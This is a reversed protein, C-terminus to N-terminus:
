VSAIPPDYRVGGTMPTAVGTTEPFTLPLGRISRAALYAMAEAEIFDGRLGNDDVSICPRGLRESLVRMLVPNHRGGGCVHWCSPAAPLTKASHAVAHATFEVLTAVADADGLQSLPELSFDFRDLSKPGNRTFYDSKLYQAVLACDPSGVAALRGDKDYRGLGRAQVLLDILGNGPGTDLAQLAGDEGIWTLNAVGGINLFVTPLPADIMRALARHYLPVLPAGEGGAALDAQRMDAIVPLGLAEALDLPNGIQVTLKRDPRHLVTQGHYGALDFSPGDGQQDSPLLEVARVHAEIVMRGAVNFSGPQTGIGQWALADDTAELIASLEADKYPELVAPGFGSVNEGDTHLAAADVGDLSTGSMFGLIYM